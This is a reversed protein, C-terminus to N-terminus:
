YEDKLVTNLFEKLTKEENNIIIRDVQEDNVTISGTLLNYEIKCTDEIPITKDQLHIFPIDFVLTLENGLSKEDDRFLRGCYHCLHTRHPTYAFQGDDSHYHNCHKCKIVKTSIFNLRSLMIGGFDKYTLSSDDFTAVGNFPQNNIYIIPKQDELINEYIIKLDTIDNKKIDLPNEYMEKYPCLCEELKKGQKDSAIYKHTSCHYLPIGNELEGIYEINCKM